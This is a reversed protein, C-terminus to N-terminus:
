ILGFDTVFYPFRKDHLPYLEAAREAEEEAAVFDEKELLLLMLDHRVHAALWGIHEETAVRAATNLHRVARPHSMGQSYLLAAMGIHGCIYEIKARHRVTPVPDRRHRRALGVARAYFQEARKWDGTRRLMLAALNAMEPDGPAVAAACRAFQVATTM